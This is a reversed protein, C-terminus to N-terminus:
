TGLPVPRKGRRKLTRTTTNISAMHNIVNTGLEDTIARAPNTSFGRMFQGFAAAATRWTASTVDPTGGSFIAPHFYKRLYIRKGKSNLRDLGWRVWNATDGPGFSESGIVYTGAVVVDPLVRLDVTWVANRNEDFSNYGYGKIVKTSSAYLTKEQAVILDFLSRWAANTTPPDGSLKYGNSYEELVNGRYPFSKVIVIECAM